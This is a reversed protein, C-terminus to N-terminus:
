KKNLIEEALSFVFEPTLKRMCDFTKIPCRRGGHIACPKCKLGEVQAVKDKEGLPAFGFEPVTPGFITVTPCNMLGAFHTPASDNTITIEVKGLLILLQSLNTQGALSIAGTKGALDACLKEDESSGILVAKIGSEGLMNILIEFYEPLWRKTEWVSGPAIAAIKSDSLGSKEIALDLNKIDKLSFDFQPNPLEEAISEFDSFVKLLEFNRQTERLHLKYDIRRRYLFSAANKNFGVSFEPKALFVVLTSRLSRHPSIVCDVGEDRLQEALKRIGKLGKDENRKDYPITKDVAESYKIFSAASPTAVFYIKTEPSYNKITQVLYLALASDGLFATQIVALKKTNKLEFDEM